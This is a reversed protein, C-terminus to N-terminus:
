TSRIEREIAERDLELGHNYEAHAQVLHVVEDETDARVHFTCGDQFCEFEHPM